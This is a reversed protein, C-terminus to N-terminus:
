WRGDELNPLGGCSVGSGSGDVVDEPGQPRSDPAPAPLDAAICM